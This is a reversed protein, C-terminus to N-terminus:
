LFWVLLEISFLFFLLLLIFLYFNDTLWKHIIHECFYSQLTGGSEQAYMILFLRVLACLQVYIGCGSWIWERQAM